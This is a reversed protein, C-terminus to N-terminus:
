RGRRPATPTTWRHRYHRGLALPILRQVSNVPFPIASFTANENIVAIATMVRSTPLHSVIYRLRSITVYLFASGARFGVGRSGTQFPTAHCPPNLNSSRIAPNRDTEWIQSLLPLVDHCRENIPKGQRWLFREDPRQQVRLNPKGATPNPNNKFSSALGPTPTSDVTFSDQIGWVVKGLKGDYISHWFGGTVQWVDNIQGACASTSNNIGTPNRNAAFCRSNDITGDGFGFPTGGSFTVHNFVHNEGAYAYLDLDKIANHSTLGAM